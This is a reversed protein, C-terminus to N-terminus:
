RVPRDCCGCAGRRIRRCVVLGIIPGRVSRYLAGLRSRREAATARIAAVAGGPAQLMRLIFYCGVAFLAQFSSEPHGGFFQLAVVIALGSATLLGPRRILYETALLMWPIWPFVSALPWPLWAILFLGFGFVVGSVFAGAFRM